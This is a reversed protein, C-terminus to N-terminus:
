FKLINEVFCSVAKEIWTAQFSFRFQLNKMNTAQNDKLKKKTKVFQV